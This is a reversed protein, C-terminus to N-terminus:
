EWLLDHIAAHTTLEMVLFIHQFMRKMKIDIPKSVKSRKLHLVITQYNLNPNLKRLFGAKM